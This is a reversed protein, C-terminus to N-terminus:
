PTASGAVAGPEPIGGITDLARHVDADSMSQVKVFLDAIHTVNVGRETGLREVAASIAAVTPSLFVMRLPVDLQFVELLRSAVQAALLSHGGLDFFNRDIDVSPIGLVDCWIAAIAGELSNRPALGAEASPMAVPAPPPLAKRDLKGNPTLPLRDLPIIASPVMYEPLAERIFARLEAGIAPLTSDGLVYAVLRKDGPADERAVVVAESVAPHQRLRASVEGPEIRVGRIKVQHDLRGLLELTCDPTCRALDGTRYLRAGPRSAFPDPVFKEATLEPRNFYGWGVGVGGLHLEGPVGIPSPHGRRDLVYATQNAMPRGYPISEWAPDCRGVEFITSDMSVETAGGLAIVRVHPTLARLRDPLTVPIWDGGLLVMRLSELSGGGAASFRDVLLQLLAPVSHWVTIKHRRMMDAWHAPEREDAADPLVIAAGAMLTGFVDYASMDFGLSALALLRDGPGIEFRRNFDAFNNVRGRHDLAVAKPTGTSGSTYILYALNDPTAGSRPRVDCSDSLDVCLARDGLPPLSSLIRSQTLVLPVGSDALMFEVRDRPYDPDIPVYGAGAKLIGLLGVISEVSRKMAIAVAAGPGIGRSRLRVAVGNALRDVDAYSYTRQSTVVAPRDPDEDVRAEVLQHLCEGAPFPAATKNCDVVLMKREPETLIEVDGIPLDPNRAVQELLARFHGLMRHVTSADFLSTSYRLRGFLQRKDEWFHLLLDYQTTTSDLAIPTLRLDEVSLPKPSTNLLVLMCQSFPPHSLDREPHLEQVLHEFPLDQHSFAGLAAQRAQRLVARFTMGASLDGRLVVINTLCGILSETERHNRSAVGSTILIQNQDTYRYFLVQWLALLAMFMTGDQARALSTLADALERELVISATAGEFTQVPKRPRDTPLELMRPVGALQQKWYELQTARADSKLWERQWAAFDGYQIPLEPLVAAMGGSNATYIAVLEQVFLNVSWEDFVTHHVTLVILHDDEALRVLHIRLLPGSALDFPRSAETAAFRLAEQQRAATPVCSLDVLPLPVSAPPAVAQILERDRLQFTTRLIEHRRVIQDLGSQLAAVDLRGELRLVAPINFGTSGPTLQDMLWLQEQAASLPPPVGGSRVPISVAADTTQRGRLRRDLLARKATSLRARREDLNEPTFGNEPGSTM